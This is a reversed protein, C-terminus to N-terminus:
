SEKRGDILRLAKHLCWTIAAYELAIAITNFLWNPLSEVGPMLVLPLVPLFLLALPTGTHAIAMSNQSGWVCLLASIPLALLASLVLRHKQM